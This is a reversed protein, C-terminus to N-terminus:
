CRSPPEGFIPDRASYARGSIAHRSVIPMFKSFIM